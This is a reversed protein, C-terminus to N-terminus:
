SAGRLQKVMALDYDLTEARHISRRAHNWRGPNRVLGHCFPKGRHILRQPKGSAIKKVAGDTLAILYREGDEDFYGQIVAYHARKGGTEPNGRYDVDFAVVAPRGADLVSYLDELPKNM